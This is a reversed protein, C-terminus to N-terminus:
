VPIARKRRKILFLIAITVAGLVAGIYTTKSEPFGILLGSIMLLPRAWWGILGVTILYGEAGGAILIVGIMCMSFYYLTMLVTGGQFILAPNFVFYFPIFFLVIGLRVSQWATKMPPAGALTAALFSGAAVPPTICSLMAYYMIFLHVALTNLNGAQIVAPAFSIALFIYAAILMGAMGMIYCAIFGMILMLYVNGGALEVFGLTFSGTVGTTILGAYIFSIPLIIGMSQTILSGVSAIADILKRPTMMTDRRFFSLVILLGAAYFPALAEWRMYLLGWLLFFFVSIFRWGEKLTKKLSPVQDKPLGRLGTRAAYADVQMLLGFYYLISPIAAAVIIVSYEINLMEAMVFAVAGMVPPMLVGGTSACAEVAGAFYPPYGMRKMTPITVSGTGIINSFVSGSLSGFFGSSLVSVKAPGGRFRGLIANALDIFFKGAGSAVLFGAFLLFGILIFGVVSIPIGLLGEATFAINGVTRTLTFSKGWFIGPMYDAFLPYAGLLLMVFLYINGGTRRGGEAVALLLIIGFITSLTDPTWGAFTIRNAQSILYVSVGFVLVAAVIDYWPLHRNDKRRAPCIIFVSTSFLAILIFDYTVDMLPKGFINLSFNAIIAFALGVISFLVFVIKLPLSLHSYRTVEVEVIKAKEM